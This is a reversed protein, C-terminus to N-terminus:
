PLLKAISIKIENVTITIEKVEKSIGKHEEKNDMFSEHINETNTKIYTAISMEMAAIKINVMTEIKAIKVNTNVWVTIVGGLLCLFSIVLGIILVFDQLGATM